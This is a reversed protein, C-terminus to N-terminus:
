SVPIKFLTITKKKCDFRVKDFFKNKIQKLQTPTINFSVNTIYRNSVNSYDSEIEQSDSQIVLNKESSLFTLQAGSFTKFKINSIIVTELFLYGNLENSITYLQGEKSEAIKDGPINNIINETHTDVHLREMARINGLAALIKDIKKLM